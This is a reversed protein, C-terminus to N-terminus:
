KKGAIRAAEKELRHRYQREAKIWFSAAVGTLDRLLFAMEKTMPLVGEFFRELDEEGMGMQRAFLPRSIHMVEMMRRAVAGTPVICPNSRAAAEAERLAAQAAAEGANCAADAPVAATARGDESGAGPLGQGQDQAQADVIGEREDRSEM